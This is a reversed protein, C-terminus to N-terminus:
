IFLWGCIIWTLMVSSLDFLEMGFCIVFPSSALFNTSKNNNKVPFVLRRIVAKIVSFTHYYLYLMHQYDTIIVWLFLGKERFKQVHLYLSHAFNVFLNADRQIECRCIMQGDWYQLLSSCQEIEFVTKCFLNYCPSSPPLVFVLQLGFCIMSCFTKFLHNNKTRM